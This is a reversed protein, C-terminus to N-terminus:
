PGEEISFFFFFSACIDIHTHVFFVGGPLIIWARRVSAASAVGKGHHKNESWMSQIDILIRVIFSAPSGAGASHSCQSLRKGKSNRGKGLPPIQTFHDRFM